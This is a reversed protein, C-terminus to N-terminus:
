TYRMSRMADEALRSAFFSPPRYPRMRRKDGDHPCRDKGNFSGGTAGPIRRDNPRLKNYGSLEFIAWDGYQPFAERHHRASRSNRPRRRGERVALGNLVGTLARLFVSAMEPRQCVMRAVKGLVVDYRTTLEHGDLPALSATIFTMSATVAPYRSHFELAIKPGTCWAVLHASDVKERDLIEKLDEAHEVIGYGTLAM